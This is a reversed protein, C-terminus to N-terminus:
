SYFQAGKRHRKPTTQVRGSEGTRQSMDDLVDQLRSPDSKRYLLEVAAFKRFTESTISLNNTLDFLSAIDFLQKNIEMSCDKEGKYFPIGTTHPAFARDKVHNERAVKEIWELTRSDPHIM